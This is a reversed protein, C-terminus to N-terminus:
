SKIESHLTLQCSSWFYSIQQFYPEIVIIIILEIISSNFGQIHDDHLSFVSVCISIGQSEHPFFHSVYLDKMDSVQCRITYFQEFTRSVHPCDQFLVIKLLPVFEQLCIHCVVFINAM